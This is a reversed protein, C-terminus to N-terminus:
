RRSATEVEHELSEDARDLVIAGHGVQARFSRLAVEDIKGVDQLGLVQPRRKARGLDALREAVLDGGAVENEPGPLELLHLELVVDRGVVACRHNSYQHLSRKSHYTRRPMGRSM